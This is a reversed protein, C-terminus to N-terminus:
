ARGWLQLQRLCRRASELSTIEYEEQEVVYWEVAGIQEAAAFVADFDVLGAGIECQKGGDRGDKLHLLPTRAGLRRLFDEPKQGASHVWYVDLEAAVHHPDAAGLIWEFASKGDIFAIEHGHNHYGFRFGRAGFEAGILDLEAGFAECQARTAVAEPAIWPCIIDHTGFLTAEEAVRPLENRLRDITVHMGSVALGAERVAAAAEEAGLNGYGALEVGAYGIEAVAKVAGRFDSQVVDRVTWLQLSVPIKKM